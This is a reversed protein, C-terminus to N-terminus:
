PKFTGDNKVINRMIALFRNRDDDYRAGFTAAKDQEERTIDGLESKDGSNDDEEPDIEPATWKEFACEILALQENSFLDVLGNGAEYGGVQIDTDLDFANEFKDFRMCKAVLLGGVGCVKCDAPKEVRELIQEHLQTLGGREDLEEWWAEPRGSIPTIRVYGAKSVLEILGLTTWRIADKAALVRKQRKGARKFQANSKQIRDFEKRMKKNFATRTVTPTPTETATSM